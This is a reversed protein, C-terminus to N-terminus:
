LLEARMTLLNGQSADPPVASAVILKDGKGDRMRNPSSAKLGPFPYLKSKGEYSVMKAPTVLIPPPATRLSATEPSCKVQGIHDTQPTPQLRDYSFRGLQVIDDGEEAEAEYGEEEGTEGADGDDTENVPVQQDTYVILM